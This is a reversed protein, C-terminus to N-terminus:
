AADLDVHMVMDSAKYCLIANPYTASYDILMRPNKPDVLRAYYLITGVISHMRNTANIDIIDRDDIVQAILLRKGYAPVSCHHPDYQSRKPKTRQLSDLAKRAYEPILIDVYEKSYNWYITLRLYNLGEWDTSIAYMRKISNLLNNEDDKPYCKSWLLGCRLFNERTKHAWLGTTFPVPYYGHMDMHYFLQNYAIIDPQKIVYM